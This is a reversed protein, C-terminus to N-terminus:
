NILYISYKNENMQKTILNHIIHMSNITYGFLFLSIVIIVMSIITEFNNQPLVDNRNLTAMSLSWYLSHLYKVLWYEEKLFDFDLWTKANKDPYFYAAGHWMCANLHTIFFIVFILRFIKLIYDHGGHSTIIEEFNLLAVKVRKIKFFMLLQCIKISFGHNGFLGPYNKRMIGQIIVPFYSLIDFILGKKLYHKFIKPKEVIVVGDEYFGTIFKLLTDIILLIDPISVIFVSLHHNLQIEEFLAEIEDDYFIDFCLQLPIICFFVCIIFIVVTDWIVKAKRDPMIVPIWKSSKQILKDFYKGLILFKILFNNKFKNM